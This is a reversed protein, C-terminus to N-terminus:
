DILYSFGRLTEKLDKLPYPCSLPEFRSKLLVRQLAGVSARVQATWPPCRIRSARDLPATSYLREDARSQADLGAAFRLRTCKHATAARPILPLCGNM